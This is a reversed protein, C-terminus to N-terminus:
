QNTLNFKTDDSWYRLVDSLTIKYEGNVITSNGVNLADLSIFEDKALNVCPKCVDFVENAAEITAFYRNCATEGIKLLREANHQVRYIKM